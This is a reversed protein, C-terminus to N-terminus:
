LIRQATQATVEELLGLLIYILVFVLVLGLTFKYPSLYAALRGLARRSDRAKEIRGPQMFGRGFVKRADPRAPQDKATGNSM